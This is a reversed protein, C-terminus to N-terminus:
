ANAQQEMRDIFDMAQKREKRNTIYTDVIQRAVAWGNLTRGMEVQHVCQGHISILTDCKPCYEQSGFELPGHPCITWQKADDYRQDCEICSQLM